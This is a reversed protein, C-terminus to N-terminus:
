VPHRPAAYVVTGYAAAQSPPRPPGGWQGEPDGPDTPRADRGAPSSGESPGKLFRSENCPRLRVPVGTALPTESREDAAVRHGFRPRPDFMVASSIRVPTM